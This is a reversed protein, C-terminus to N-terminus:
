YREHGDKSQLVVLQALNHRQAGLVRELLLCHRYAVARVEDVHREDVEAAGPPVYGLYTRWDEASPGRGIARQTGTSM